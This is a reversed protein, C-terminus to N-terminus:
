ARKLDHCFVEFAHQPLAAADQQLAGQVVIISAEAFSEVPRFDCTYYDLPRQYHSTLNIYILKGPEGHHCSIAELKEQARRKLHEDNLKPHWAPDTPPLAFRGM